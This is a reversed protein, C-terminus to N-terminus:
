RELKLNVWATRGPVQNDFRYEYYQADALNQVVLALEGKGGAARFAYAVRADWRNNAPIFWPRGKGPDSGTDNFHTEDTRYGALSASWRENFRHSMLLSQNNTPVSNTYPVGNANGSSVISHSLAYIVRTRAGINWKLQTEAGKITASGGNLNGNEAATTTEAAILDTFADRFLRFDVDLWGFNGLYGLDTSRVREPKLNPISLFHTESAPNHWYDDFTKEYLTPTRTATSLGARLTHGPLFHWNAAVRPTTDTGTYSNHEMMAGANIVLSPTVRWELNGFLQALHYYFDGFLFTNEKVGLFYPAYSRDTRVSGGWVLRTSNSPSFTHQVEVEYRRATVDGAGPAAIGNGPDILTATSSEQAHYVQVSLEGGRDLARRWHLMEFHNDARKDPSYVDHVEGIQRPGGNYGFQMELADTSNVQYDGHFNLLRIKKDDFKNQTWIYESSTPNRIASAEGQDNRFGATMRWTLDGNHGGHRAVVEERGRGASLSLLTGQTEAPERTIINIVGIFSNAGYSASNPGRTVEIREIDDLTVPIDSWIVGGYLPSYVTRGDLLVQMRHSMTNTTLGHYSVTSDTAYFRDSHYAVFMGPVLRLVESLDWAGSDVIMKRDIVTVAAPAEDVPQALRSVTLVVPVDNLYGAESFNQDEACMAPSSGTILFLGVITCKSVSSASKAANKM